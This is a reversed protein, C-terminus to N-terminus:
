CTSLSRSLGIAVALAAAVSGSILLPASGDGQWALGAWVGAVLVAASTGGQFLGQARGQLHDPVLGSIWAKGVGDTLAAFGGYVVLLLVAVAGNRTLGLGCYTVAFCALGVAYVARASWRDTMLGAPFSLTAYSANYLVYSGVVAPVGFGIEHLRLLLLADPFNIVSFLVLVAVVRCYRDPLERWPSRSGADGGPKAPDPVPRAPAPQDQLAAVLLVSLVAPLVALVLLPRIRHGLLAYGALGLLPGVVAGATDATRHLGFVRGRAEVPVGQVLLADRPTGRIGKGLRDVGRGALVVPWAFAVAIVLKGVAALGYGTAVLSRRSWRDALAGSLVKVLAAAGEALGEVLGVVAVPAGLTVTLFIPLIPYLLESAADQLFSVGSLVLLNRTLWVPRRRGDAPRDSLV